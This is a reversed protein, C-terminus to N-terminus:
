GIASGHQHGQPIPVSVHDCTTPGTFNGSRIRTEESVPWNYVYVWANIVRGDTLRVPQERRLYENPDPFAAGYEEYEDMLALIRAPDDLRYVDGTVQEQPESTPVFGPYRGLSYMRGQCFGTDQFTAHRALHEAMAVGTHRRLTGYVFLYESRTNKRTM